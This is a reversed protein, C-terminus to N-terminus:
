DELPTLPTFNLLFKRETGDAEFRVVVTRKWPSGSLGLIRGTGYQPHSVRMDHRFAEPSPKQAGAALEAATTVAPLKSPKRAAKKRLEPPPDDPAFQVDDAPHPEFGEPLSGGPAAGEGTWVPVDDPPPADIGDDLWSKPLGASPPAEEALHTEIGEAPLEVLYPSPIAFRRQGRLERRKAYTLLLEERARTLGVFLLRREEEMGDPEDKARAHPILGDELGIVFVVPFELGKAAHLTMLKVRELTRDLADTDSALSIQELFGELSADGACREDFDRALSLLEGLNALREQDEPLESDRLRVLFGTEDLVRGVLEEVSRGSERTIREMRRVFEMLAGAAKRPLPTCAEARGAAEFLSAGESAAYQELIEQSRTGIGRPPNNVVRRFAVDNRSNGLLQLYAVADKIEARQFFALGQVVQYAVNAARLQMELKLSLANTRYLVAFDEARRGSAIGAAITRAVFAAEAQEDALARVQVPVGEPNDTFLAKAKRKRNHRILIDAVHLISKTSRFNQELRVVKAQPFDQEFGLINQLNAGRWGYISQDPDGTACLNPHTVSLGRALAYQALNTDQYEDVLIYQRRRDLSERLEPEDQLLLAPLLLLDDFDVANSQRLRRQYEPYVKFMVSELPDGPAPRFEDPRVLSNKASSIWQAIREIPVHTLDIKLRRVTQNLVARSDDMDYISFNGELGVFRAFERLLQACFRHFTGAWVPRDPVLAKLRHTMEDAAKNTFTLAAIRQHPVGQDLMYAIRHVVTRTKGSGPGALILLPGDITTAAERQPATLGRLLPHETM